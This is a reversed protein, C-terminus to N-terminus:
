DNFVTLGFSGCKTRYEYGGMQGGHMIPTEKFFLFGSGKDDLVSVIDPWNGIPFGATSAETILKQKDASLTVMSKLITFM